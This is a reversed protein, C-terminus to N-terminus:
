GDGPIQSICYRFVFLGSGVGAKGVKRTATNFLCRIPLQLAPTKRLKCKQNTGEERRGRIASEHSRRSEVERAGGGHKLPRPTRKSAGLRM